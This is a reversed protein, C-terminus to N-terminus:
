EHFFIALAAEDANCLQQQCSSLHRLMDWIHTLTHYHRWGEKYHDRLIGWWRTCCEDGVGLGRCLEKWKREVGHETSHGPEVPSHSSLVATAQSEDGPADAMRVRERLRLVSQLSKSQHDRGANM